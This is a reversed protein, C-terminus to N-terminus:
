WSRETVFTRVEPKDEGTRHWKDRNCKRHAAQKNSLEDSGGKAIPEIHDVTFSLPDLHHLSYDIEGGCLACPPKARRIVARHRDRITTNRQTM